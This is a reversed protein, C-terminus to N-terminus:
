PASSVVTLGGIEIATAHRRNGSDRVEAKVRVTKPGLAACCNASIKGTYTGTNTGDDLMVPSNVNPDTIGASLVAASVRNITNSTVIM